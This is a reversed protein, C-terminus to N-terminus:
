IGVGVSVYNFTLASMAYLERGTISRCNPEISTADLFSVLVELLPLKGVTATNTNKLIILQALVLGQMILTSIPTAWLTVMIVMSKTRIARRSKVLLYSAFGTEEVTGYVQIRRVSHRKGRKLLAFLSSRPLPLLLLLAAKKKKGTRTGM